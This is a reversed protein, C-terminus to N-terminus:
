ELKGFDRTDRQQLCAWLHQKGKELKTKHKDKPTEAMLLGLRGDPRRACGRQAAVREVGLKIPEAGFDAHLALVAAPCAGNRQGAGLHKFLTARPPHCRHQRQGQTRKAELEHGRLLRRWSGSGRHGPAQPGHRHWRWRFANQVLWEHGVKSGSRFLAVNVHLSSFHQLVNLKKKKKQKNCICIM